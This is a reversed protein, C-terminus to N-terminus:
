VAREHVTPYVPLLRYPDNDLDPREKLDRLTIRALKYLELRERLTTMRSLFLASIGLHTRIRNAVRGIDNEWEPWDGRATIYHRILNFSTLFERCHRYTFDHTLTGTDRLYHYRPRSVYVVKRANLFFVTSFYLDEYLIPPFELAHEAIIQRRFFKLTVMAPFAWLGFTELAAERGTMDRKAPRFPYPCKTGAPTEVYFNHVVCDADQETATEYAAAIYDPAYYDDADVFSIWRGRAARLGTNRAPGVGRNKQRIVRLRPDSVALAELIAPTRDTSGDDVVIIEINQFTQELVSRICRRLTAAGNYVPIIVSVLPEQTM